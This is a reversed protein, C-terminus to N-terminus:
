EYVKLEFVNGDPEQRLFTVDIKPTIVSPLPTVVPPAIPSLISQVQRKQRDDLRARDFAFDLGIAFANSYTLRDDDVWTDPLGLAHCLEHACLAAREKVHLHRAVLRGLVAVGGTNPVVGEIWDYQYLNNFPRGSYADPAYLDGPENAIIIQHDGVPTPSADIFWQLNSQIPGLSGNGTPMIGTNVVKYAVNDWDVGCESRFFGRVWDVLQTPPWNEIAPSNPAQLLTVHLTRSL